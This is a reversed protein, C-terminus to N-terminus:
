EGLGMMTPGDYSNETPEWNQIFVRIDEPSMNALENPYIVDVHGWQTDGDYILFEPHEPEGHRAILSEYEVLWEGVLFSKISALRSLKMYGSREKATKEDIIDGALHSENRIASPDCEQEIWDLITNQDQTSLKDFHRKQLTFYEHHMAMSEFIERNLLYSKILSPEPQDLSCVVYLAIRRLLTVGSEELIALVETTQGDQSLKQAVDRVADVIYNLERGLWNQKHDEIAPREMWSNDIGDSRRGPAVYETAVRSVLKLADLGLIIPLEIAIRHLVEHFHHSAIRPTVIPRDYEEDEERVVELTLLAGLLHKGDNSFGAKLAAIALETLHEHQFFMIELDLGDILRPILSVAINIPMALAAEAMEELVRPNDTNPLNVFIEAVKAPAKAAVRALYQSEPWLPLSITDGERILNPPNIFFGRDLLPQIWDPSDAKEFFYKYNESRRSILKIMSEVKDNLIMKSEELLMDIEKKDEFTRPVMMNILYAELAGLWEEFEVPEKLHAVGTFYEKLKQLEIARHKELLSPLFNTSPDLKRLLSVDRQLRIPHEKSFWDFFAKACKLFKTKSRETAGYWEEQSTALYNSWAGQLEKVKEKLTPPKKPRPGGIFKPLKDIMERLVHGAMVFRSPNETQNLALIASYYLTAAQPYKAVLENYLRKQRGSFIVLASLSETNSQLKEFTNGPRDGLDMSQHRRSSESLIYLRM